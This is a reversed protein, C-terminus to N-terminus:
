ATLGQRRRRRDDDDRHRVRERRQRPLPRQLRDRAAREAGIDDTVGALGDEDLDAVVVKAGEEAFLRATAAGISGGGGTILAVKDQLRAM